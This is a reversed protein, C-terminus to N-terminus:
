LNRGAASTSRAARYYRAATAADGLPTVPQLRVPEGRAEISRIAASFRRNEVFGWAAHIVFPLLLVAVLWAAKVFGPRVRRAPDTSDNM